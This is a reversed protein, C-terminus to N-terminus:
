RWPYLERPLIPHVAAGKKNAAIKEVNEPDGKGKGKEPIRRLLLPRSAHVRPPAPGESRIPTSPATTTKM